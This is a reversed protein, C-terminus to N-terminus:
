PRLYVMAVYRGRGDGHGLDQSLEKRAQSESMGEERYQRYQEQSWAYRLSHSAYEGTMGVARYDNKLENLATKYDPSDMVRGGNAKAHELAKQVAEQARELSKVLTERERGGKTGETVRAYGHQLQKQWQKLNDETSGKLAEQMRLGLARQLEMVVAASPNRESLALQFQQYKDDPMPKHAGIRSGGAAGLSKNSIEQRSLMQEKGAGKVAARVHSLRNAITRSSLGRETLSKAYAKIEKTGVHKVERINLNMKRLTQAFDRATLARAERTAHSGGRQNALHEFQKALSIKKSV